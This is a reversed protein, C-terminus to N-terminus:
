QAPRGKIGWGVILECPGEFGDAREFRSLETHIEQWTEDREAPSLPSLMQHLAGASERLFRLCDSAHPLRLPAPM